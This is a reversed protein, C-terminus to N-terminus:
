YCKVIYYQNRKLIEKNGDKKQIVYNAINEDYVLQFDTSARWVQMIFPCRDEITISGTNENLNEFNFCKIFKYLDELRNEIINSFRISCPHPWKSVKNVENALIKFTTKVDPKQNSPLWLLIHVHLNGNKQWEYWYWYHEVNFVPMLIHEFFLEVRKIFFYEEYEPMSGTFKDPWYNYAATLTLFITPLSTQTLSRLEEYRTEWYAKTSPVFKLVKDRCEVDQLNFQFFPDNTLSNYQEITQQCLYMNFAFFCFSKDNIFRRDEQQLLFRIYEMQNLPKDRQQQFDGNGYPFLHPFTMSLFGENKLWKDTSYLNSLFFEEDKNEVSEKFLIRKWDEPNTPIKKFNEHNININSYFRNNEKLWELAKDLKEIRVNFFDGDFSSSFGNLLNNTLIIFKSLESPLLPLEDYVKVENQVIKYAIKKENENYISVIPHIIAILMLEIYSLNKLQDPISSIKMNNRETFKIPDEQCSDCHGNIDISLGLFKRTCNTCSKVSNAFDKMENEFKIAAYIQEQSYNVIHQDTNTENDQDSMKLMKYSIFFAKYFYRNFQQGNQQQYLSKISITVIVIQLPKHATGMLCVFLRLIKPPKRRNLRNMAAFSTLPQVAPNISPMNAIRELKNKVIRVIKENTKDSNKFNAYHSDVINHALDFDIFYNVDNNNLNALIIQRALKNSRADKLNQSIRFNLNKLMPSTSTCGDLAVM